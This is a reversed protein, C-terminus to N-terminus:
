LDCAEPIAVGPTAQDYLAQSLSGPWLDSRTKAKVAAAAEIWRPQGGWITSYLKDLRLPANDEDAIRVHVDFGRM